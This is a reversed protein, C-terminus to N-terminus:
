IGLRAGELKAVADKDGELEVRAAAQRGFAFLTLEGPEGTVTVVPTGRQAVATRGDPRRLVLGVPSRRGLMRTVRELRTWLADAFVPDVERPAWDEQARRVDEAHVYFEITNAAEDIQKLAYPSLRPPGTRILQILEEYPKAAFEAQVRELRAALPRFVLGAAADSRRERVVVHAALDRTRWGDCLTPANPGASELLDALLLRERQAHTSM